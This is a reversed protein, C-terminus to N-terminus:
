KQIYALDTPSPGPEPGNPGLPGVNVYGGNFAQFMLGFKSEDVNCSVGTRKDTITIEVDPVIFIVIDDQQITVIGDERVQIDYM